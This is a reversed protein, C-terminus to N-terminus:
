RIWSIRLMRGAAPARPRGPPFKIGALIYDYRNNQLLKRAEVLCSALDHTHDLAALVDEVM